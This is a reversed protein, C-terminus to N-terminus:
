LGTPHRMVYGDAPRGRTLWQPGRAGDGYGTDLRLGAIVMFVHGNHAYVTIWRGPGSEGYRRFYGSPTPTELHGIAHLVYSTTGSCDYGSDYFTGHGGGYRYPKGILENGAEIAQRVVGPADRPSVALGNEVYATKGPIYHYAYPPTTECGTILVAFALLLLGLPQRVM